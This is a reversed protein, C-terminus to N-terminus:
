NKRMHRFYQKGLTDEPLRELESWDVAPARFRREFLDRFGPDSMARAVALEVGKSNEIKRGVDALKFVEDTRTPDQALRFFAHGFKLENVRRLVPCGRSDKEM